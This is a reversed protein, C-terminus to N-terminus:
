KVGTIRSNKAFKILKKSFKDIDNIQNETYYGKGENLYGKARELSENIIYQLEELIEKKNM